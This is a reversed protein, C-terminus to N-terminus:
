EMYPRALLADGNLSCIEGLSEAAGRRVVSLRTAVVEPASGPPVSRNTRVLQRILTPRIDGRWNPRIQTPFYPDIVVLRRADNVTLWHSVLANVHEDGFSYGVVVLVRACSLRHAFAARLDLFPGDARLKERRGFVVFPLEKGMPASPRLAVRNMGMPSYQGTQHNYADEFDEGTRAWDISGHLKYLRVADAPFALHGTSDWEGVGTACTVGHQEACTEITQDYNLTAISVGGPRSGLTM